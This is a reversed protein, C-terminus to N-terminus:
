VAGAVEKESGQAELYSTCSTLQASWMSPNLSWLSHCPPAPGWGGLWEFALSALQCDQEQVGGAVLQAGDPTGPLLVPFLPVQGQARSGIGAM